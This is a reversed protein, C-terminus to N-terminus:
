AIEKSPQSPMSSASSRMHKFTAGENGDKQDLLTQSSMMDGGNNDKSEETDEVGEYRPVPHMNELPLFWVWPEHMGLKRSKVGLRNKARQMSSKNYGAGEAEKLIDAYLMPSQNTLLELLFDAAATTATPKSAPKASLITQADVLNPQWCIKSTAIGEPLVVTEIKYGFGDKDNGVNNKLPIFYRIAPDKEDKIIAYAARAAAVLGISGIVRGIPEQGASKNFHTVTILAVNYKAAIQAFPALLGRMDSNKHSDAKGLYASIPDIIVVSINGHRELAQALKNADEELNFTRTSKKGDKNIVKVAELVHCRSVDAGAALLRPKITDAADDEASLIIVDGIAATGEDEPWTGGTTIIAAIYATLQSKGLGPNGAIVTLKGRAIRDPWLWNIPQMEIDRMCKIELELEPQFFNKNVVTADSIAKALWEHSIGPPLIDALDWKDPFIKPVQVIAVSVAGVALAIRAVDAAYILGEADHDPWIFVIRGALLSWDAYNAANAGNPSTIVVYDPFIAQAADAAKEGEVILVPKDPYKVLLHQNYIPRPEDLGKWAWQRTGNQYQRYTLPLVIKGGDNKDFRCVHLILREREDYYNWIKSLIGLYHKPPDLTVDNPIPTVATGEEKNSNKSDFNATKEEATLPNFNNIVDAM